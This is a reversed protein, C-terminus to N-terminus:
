RKAYRTHKQCAVLRYTKGKMKNNSNSFSTQFIEQLLIFIPDTQEYEYCVHVVYVLRNMIVSTEGSSLRATQKQFDFHFSQFTQRFYFM